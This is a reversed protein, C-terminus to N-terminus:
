RNKHSHDGGRKAAATRGAAGSAGSAKGGKVKGSRPQAEAGLRGAEERSMKNDNDEAM